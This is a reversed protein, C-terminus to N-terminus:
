QITLTVTATQPSASGTAPIATVTIVYSGAHATPISSGSECDNMAVGSVALVALVVM